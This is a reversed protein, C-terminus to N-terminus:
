PVGRALSYSCQSKRFRVQKSLSTNYIKVVSKTSPSCPNLMSMANARLQIYTDKPRLHPAEKQKQLIHLSPAFTISFSLSPPSDSDALRKNFLFIARTLEPCCSTYKYINCLAIHNWSPINLFSVATTVSAGGMGYVYAMDNYEISRELRACENGKNLEKSTRNGRQLAILTSQVANRAITCGDGV